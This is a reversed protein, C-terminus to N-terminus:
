HFVCCFAQHFAGGGGQHRKSMVNSIKSVRIDMNETYLATPYLIIKSPEKQMEPTRLGGTYKKGQLVLACLKVLPQSAVRGNIQRERKKM